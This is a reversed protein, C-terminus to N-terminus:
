CEAAGTKEEKGGPSVISMGPTSPSSVNTVIANDRLYFGVPHPRSRRMESFLRKCTCDTTARVRMTVDGMGGPAVRVNWGLNSGPERRSASEIRGGTVDFLGDKVTRYSLGDAEHSLRFDIEFPTQRPSNGASSAQWYGPM